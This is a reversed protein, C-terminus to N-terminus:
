FFSRFRSFSFAPLSINILDIDKQYVLSTVAFRDLADLIGQIGNGLLRDTNM